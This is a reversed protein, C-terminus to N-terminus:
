MLRYGDCRFSNDKTDFYGDLICILGDLWIIEANNTFYTRLVVYRGNKNTDKGNFKITQGNETTFVGHWDSISIGNRYILSRGAGTIRGNPFSNFGVIKGTWKSNREVLGDVTDKSVIESEEPIDIEEFLKQGIAIM